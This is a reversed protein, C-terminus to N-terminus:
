HWLIQGETRATPVLLGLIGRGTASKGSGSEGVVGPVEGEAIQLNVGEVAKTAGFAINLDCIELFPPMLSDYRM